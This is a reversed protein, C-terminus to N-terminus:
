QEEKVKRFYVDGPFNSCKTKGCCGFVKYLACCDCCESRNWVTIVVLEGTKKLRVVDGVKYHHFHFMKM